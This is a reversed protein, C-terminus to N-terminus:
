ECKRGHVSGVHRIRRRWDGAGVRVEVARAEVAQGHEQATVSHLVTSVALVLQGTVGKETRAVEATTAGLDTQVLLVHTVTDRVTRLVVVFAETVHGTGQLACTSTM